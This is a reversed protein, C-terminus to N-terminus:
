PEQRLVGPVRDFGRDYTIIETLHLRDMLVAHYADAFSLNLDVYLNFVRHLRRKGPLVVGPLDVLALLKDRVEVRPVSYTKQLVYVAEFVVTDATRVRREGREISELYATARPSQDPEDALLHRLLINTDLFPLAM